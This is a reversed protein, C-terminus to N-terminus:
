RRAKALRWKEEETLIRELPHSGHFRFTPPSSLDQDGFRATGEPKPGTALEWQCLEGVLEVDWDGRVKCYELFHVFSGLCLRARARLIPAAKVIVNDNLIMGAVFTPTTVRVLREIM